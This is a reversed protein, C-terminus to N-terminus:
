EKVETWDSEAAAALTAPLLGARAAQRLSRFVSVHRLGPASPPPPLPAMPLAPARGGSHGAGLRPRTTADGVQDRATTREEQGPDRLQPANVTGDPLLEIVAGPQRDLDLYREGGGPGTIRILPADGLGDRQIIQPRKAIQRAVFAVLLAIGLIVCLLGLPMGYDRVYGLTLEREEAARTATARYAVQTALVAEATATQAAQKTAGVITAQLAMAGATAEARRTAELAQRTAEWREAEVTATAASAMAHATATAASSMADATVTARYSTEARTAQVAAEAAQATQTAFAAQQTAWQNERKLEEELAVRTAEYIGAQATAQAAAQAANVEVASRTAYRELAIAEATGQLPSTFTPLTTTGSPTTECGIVLLVLLALPCLGIIFASRGTNM